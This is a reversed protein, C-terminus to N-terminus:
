RKRKKPMAERYPASPTGRHTYKPLEPEKTTPADTTPIVGEVLGHAALAEATGKAKRDKIHAQMYAAPGFKGCKCVLMEVEQGCTSCHLHDEGTVFLYHADNGDQEIKDHNEIETPM